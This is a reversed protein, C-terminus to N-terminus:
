LFSLMVETWICSSSLQQIRVVLAGANVSLPHATIVIRLHDRISCHMLERNQYHNFTHLKVQIGVCLSPSFETGRGLCLM